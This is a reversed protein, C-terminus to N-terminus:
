SRLQHSYNLGDFDHGVNRDSTDHKNELFIQDECFKFVGDTERFTISNVERMSTLYMIKIEDVNFDENDFRLGSIKEFNEFLIRNLELTHKKAGEEEEIYKEREEKPVLLPEWFEVNSRISQISDELKSIQNSLSEKDKSFSYIQLFKDHDSENVGLENFTNKITDIKEKNYNKDILIKSSEINQSDYGEIRRVNVSYKTGNKESILINVAILPNDSINEISIYQYKDEERNYFKEIYAIDRDIVNSDIFVQKQRGDFPLNRVQILPRVSSYRRETEISVQKNFQEGSQRIQIVIFVTAILSAVVGVWDAFTGFKEPEDASSILLIIDLIGVIGGVLICRMIPELFRKSM